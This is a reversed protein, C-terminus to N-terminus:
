RKSLTSLLQKALKLLVDVEESRYNMARALKDRDSSAARELADKLVYAVQYGQVGHNSMASNFKKQYADLVARSRPSQPNHWYNGDFLHETLERNEAIFRPNSYAANALGM